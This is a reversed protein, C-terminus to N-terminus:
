NAPVVVFFFSFKSNSVSSRAHQGIAFITVLFSLRHISRVISFFRLLEGRCHILYVYDNVLSLAYTTVLSIVPFGYQIPLIDYFVRLIRRHRKTLEQVYARHVLFFKDSPLRKGRVDRPPRLAAVKRMKRLIIRNFVIVNWRLLIFVMHLYYLVPVVGWLELVVLPVYEYLPHNKILHAYVVMISYSIPLFINFYIFVNVLVTNRLRPGASGANGEHMKQSLNQNWIEFDFRARLIFYAFNAIPMLCFSTIHALSMVYKVQLDTYNTKSAWYWMRWVSFGMLLSLFIYHIAYLFAAGNKFHSIKHYGLIKMLMNM